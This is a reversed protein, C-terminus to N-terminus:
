SARRQRVGLALVTSLISGPASTAFEFAEPPQAGDHTHTLSVQGECPVPSPRAPPRLFGPARPPPPCEGALPLMGPIQVRAPNGGDERASPDFTWM